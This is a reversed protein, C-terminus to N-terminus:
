YVQPINAWFILKEIEFDGSDYFYYHPEGNIEMEYCNVVFHNGKSDKVLIEDSQKGDWDGTKYCIPKEVDVRKWFQDSESTYNKHGNEDFKPILFDM